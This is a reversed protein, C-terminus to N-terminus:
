GLHWPCPPRGQPSYCLEPLVGVVVFSREGPRLHLSFYKISYRLSRVLLPPVFSSISTHPIDFFLTPSSVSAPSSLCVYCCPIVPFGYVCRCFRHPFVRSLHSLSPICFRTKVTFRGSLVRPSRTVPPPSCSLSPWLRQQDTPSWSNFLQLFPLM